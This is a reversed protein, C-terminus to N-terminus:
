WIATKGEFIGSMTADEVNAGHALLIRIIEIQGRGAAIILCSNGKSDRNHPSSKELYNKIVEIDGVRCANFYVDDALSSTSPQQSSSMAGGIPM